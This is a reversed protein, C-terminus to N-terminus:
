QEGRALVRRAQALRPSLVHVAASRLGVVLVVRPGAALDWYMEDHQRPFPAHTGSGYMDKILGAYFSFAEHQFTDREDSVDQSSDTLSLHISSVEDDDVLSISGLGPKVGLNTVFTAETFPTWGLSTTVVHTMGELRVPWPLEVLAGVQRRFDAESVRNWSM